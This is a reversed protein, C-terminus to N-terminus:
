SNLNSRLVIYQYIAIFLINFFIGPLILVFILINMMQYDYGFDRGLFNIFDCCWEFLNIKFDELHFLVNLIDLYDTYFHTKNLYAFDNIRSNKTNGGLVTILFVAIWFLISGKYIIKLQNMFLVIIKLINIKVNFNYHFQIACLIKIHLCKRKFCNLPRIKFM